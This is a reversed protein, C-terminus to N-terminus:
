STAIAVAEGGRASLVGGRGSAARGDAVRVGESGGPGRACGSTWVSAQASAGVQSISRQARAIPSDNVSVKQGLPICITITLPGSATLSTKM